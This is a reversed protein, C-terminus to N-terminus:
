FRVTKNLKLSLSFFLIVPNEFKKELKVYLFYDAKM